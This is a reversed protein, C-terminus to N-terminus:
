RIRMKSNIKKVGPFQRALTRCENAENVSPVRGKLTVVGDCAVVEIHDDSIDPALAIKARIENALVM